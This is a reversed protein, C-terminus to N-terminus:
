WGLLHIRALSFEREFQVIVETVARQDDALAEVLDKLRLEGWHAALRCTKGLLLACLPLLATEACPQGLGACDYLIM